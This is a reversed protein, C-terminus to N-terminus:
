KMEKQIKVMTERLIASDGKALEILKLVAAMAEQDKQRTTETENIAKPILPLWCKECYNHNVDNLNQCRPCPERKLVDTQTEEKKLGYMKLIANDVQKGSLHVYRVAMSSNQVWGFYEKMQAETLFQATYTARSHRFHHPNVPKKIGAKKAANRLMKNIFRLNM